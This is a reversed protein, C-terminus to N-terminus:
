RRPMGKPMAPKPMKFWEIPLERERGGRTVTVTGKEGAARASVHYLLDTVETVEKGDLAVILDGKAVGAKEAPSGPEVGLAVV